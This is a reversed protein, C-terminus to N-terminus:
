FARTAEVTVDSNNQIDVILKTPDSWDLNIIGNPTFIEAQLQIDGSVTAIPYASSIKIM